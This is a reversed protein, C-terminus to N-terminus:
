FSLSIYAMGRDKARVKGEGLDQSLPTLYNTGFGFRGATLEIGLTGNLSQGGTEWVQVDSGRSDKAASEFLVGANPAISSMKGLSIKYYGLVNATFKDGYEYDHGNRTNLKYSINTNIGVDQLRIDYMAHLSFDTSGTGLQFTNQSSQAINKEQPNYKGTPAKVGAGVWLSQVLLKDHVTSKGSLLQYYGIVTIDGLGNESASGTSNKREIFNYPVFAAVRFKKGINVAGWLEAVRFTETSTLYTSAGRPGLHNTLGNQQYRFSVFRKRFGPLIGLYGGGVGCGCIDCAFSQFAFLSFIILSFTKKM